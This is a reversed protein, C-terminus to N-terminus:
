KWIAKTAIAPSAAMAVAIITMLYVGDGTARCNIEAGVFIVATAFWVAITSLLRTANDDIRMDNDDIKM